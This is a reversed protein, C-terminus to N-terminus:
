AYAFPPQIDGRSLMSFTWRNFFNVTVTMLANLDNKANHRPNNFVETMNGTGDLYRLEVHFSVEDAFGDRNLADDWTANSCRFGNLSVRYLGQIRM